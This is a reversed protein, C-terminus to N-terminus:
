LRWGKGTGRRQEVWNYLEEYRDAMVKWTLERLAWARAALRAAGARGAPARCNSNRRQRRDTVTLEEGRRSSLAARM